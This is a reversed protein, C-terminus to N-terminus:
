LLMLTELTWRLPCQGEAFAKGRETGAGNLEAAGEFWEPFGKRLEAGARPLQQNNAGHIAQSIQRCLLRFAARTRTIFDDLLGGLSM